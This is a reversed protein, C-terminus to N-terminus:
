LLVSLCVTTVSVAFTTRLLHYRLVVLVLDLLLVLLADFRSVSM